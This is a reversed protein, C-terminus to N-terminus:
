VHARGIKAYYKQGEFWLGTLGMDDGALLIKGLPSMYSATYEMAIM